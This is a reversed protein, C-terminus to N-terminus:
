GRKDDVGHSPSETDNVPLESTAASHTPTSFQHADTTASAPEAVLPGTVKGIPIADTDIEVAVPATTGDNGTVQAHPTGPLPALVAPAATSPSRMVAAIIALLGGVGICAGFVVILWHAYADFVPVDFITLFPTIIQSQEPFNRTLAAAMDLNVLSRGALAGAMGIGGSVFALGGVWGLLGRITRVALALIIIVLMAPWIIGQRATQTIGDIATTIDRMQMTTLPNDANATLTDGQLAARVRVEIYTALQQRVASDQPQCVSDGLDREAHMLAVLDSEQAPTCAPAATVVQQMLQPMDANLVRELSAVSYDGNMKEVIVPMQERAINRVTPDPFLTNFIDNTDTDSPNAVAASMIAPLAEIVRAQMREPSLNAVFAPNSLVVNTFGNLVISGIIMPIAIMSLLVAGIVSCTRM